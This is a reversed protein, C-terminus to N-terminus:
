KGQLIIGSYGGFTKASPDDLARLYPDLIGHRLKDLLCKYQDGILVSEEDLVECAFLSSTATNITSAIETAFSRLTVSSIATDTSESANCSLM